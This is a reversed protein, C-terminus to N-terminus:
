FKSSILTGSSLVQPLFPLHADCFLLIEGEHIEISVTQDIARNRAGERVGMELFENQLNWQLGLTTLRAKPQPILSVIEQNAASFVVSKRLPVAYRGSEYVCITLMQSHRMLVSWNNLSHEALGGHFGTVIIDMFGKERCFVLCKEFDNSEQDPNHIITSNPFDSEDALLRFSDLDGIIFDPSIGFRQLQIAAGDAAIIPSDVFFDFFDKSSPLAGDLCILTHFKKSSSGYIDVPQQQIDSSNQIM